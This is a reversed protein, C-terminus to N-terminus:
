MFDKIVEVGILHSSDIVLDNNYGLVMSEKIKEGTKKRLNRVEDLKLIKM